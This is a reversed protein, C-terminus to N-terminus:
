AFAQIAEAPEQKVSFGQQAIEGCALVAHGAALINRAANVDANAEHGCATCKFRAQSTRNDAETHGCVKCKRSTNRAPVALVEGGLWVEKYELQRRFEFWGQDLISRNLGSKAKVNRGPQEITGNASKSMNKINLDEICVIAHNKSIITTTKHLYDKRVNAIKSHLKQIKKKAKKWNSSFKQKRAMRRQYRALRQQHKKFSNIPEFVTGDSLTALKAIGVDIGIISTSPHVPQEIERETQISVYWHGGSQSVTIKKATGEIIRSNRYQLWGIKPLFVRSNDQDVKFQKPDPYRFSDGQGKKKFRPFDARKQFFNTYARELDKLTQQLPHIPSELLWVTEPNHRWETLSKCLGAYALKKEGKAHREQQLALAKNFIFRCSGAFRRLIREETENIKLQYKYAQLRKM